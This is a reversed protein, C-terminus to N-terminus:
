ALIPGSFEAEFGGAGPRKLDLRLGYRDSIERAVSLGLGPAGPRRNRGEDGRFRRIATLARFAEETVGPGNDTVWLRFRQEDKVIDLSVTAEGGRRNHRVANDVVNAVAREVLSEDAAIIVPADPLALKLVVGEAKAVPLHRQVVRAVIASLDIRAAEPAPGPMRLRAAATLNEVEGSLQHARRLAEHVDALSPAQANSAAALQTELAAIPRAVEEDTSRVFRRLAEELDDIRARREHLEKSTDNIVFTLSSLEDKLTDPAIASYGGEGSAHADKALRRIRRVLPATAALAALFSVAFLGLATLARQRLQHPPAQMRGLFYMCPSGNWGTAMAVQVGTGDATVHPAVAPVSDSRLARRFDAPFSPTAPGSGAFSEDYAFLEFPQPEARPRPPLVNPDTEVFVGGPPRGVLPGTLFWRPDSECRERVQANIQSEVVRTVALERDAARGREIAVYMAAAAPLAVLASTVVVRPRLMM